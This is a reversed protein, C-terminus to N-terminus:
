SSRKRPRFGRKAREALRRKLEAPGITPADGEKEVALRLARLDEYDELEERLRLYQSYPLVAFAKRGKHEIIQAEMHSM